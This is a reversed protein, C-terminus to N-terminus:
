KECFWHKKHHEALIDSYCTRENVLKEYLNCWVAHLRDMFLENDNYEEETFHESFYNSKGSVMFAIFDSFVCGKCSM